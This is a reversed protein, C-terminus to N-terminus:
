GEGFSETEVELIMIDAGGTALRILHESFVTGAASRTAKLRDAESDFWVETMRYHLPEPLGISHLPVVIVEGEGRREVLPQNAPGGLLRSAEVRTVGDLDRAMEIHRRYEQQFAAEDTPWGFLVSLKVVTFTDWAGADM